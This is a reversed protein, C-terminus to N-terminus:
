IEFDILQLVYLKKATVYEKQTHLTHIFTSLRGSIVCNSILCDSLHADIEENIFCLMRM